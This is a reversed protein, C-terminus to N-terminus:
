PTLKKGKAFEKYKEWQEDDINGKSKEQNYYNSWDCDDFLSPQHPYLANQEDITMDLDTKGNARGRWTHVDYVWEPIGNILKCDMLNLHEIQDEPITQEYDMFNCAFYCADRNKRALCLLVIAKSVFIMDKNYGKRSKNVIEDADHLAIIEKTIIGYCDEASIVLLRNWLYGNFTGFLERAAYGAHNFDGRRIAKQLMSAMDYFNHGHLTKPMTGM